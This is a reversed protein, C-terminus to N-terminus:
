APKAWRVRTCHLVPLLIASLVVLTSAMDAWSHYNLLKMLCGYGILSAISLSNFMLNKHLSIIALLAFAAALHTSYDLGWHAWFQFYIDAFMLVYVVMFAYVFQVLPWKNGVRWSRVLVILTLLLLIPTYIDALLALIFTLQTSLPM